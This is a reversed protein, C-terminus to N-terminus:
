INKELDPCEYNTRLDPTLSSAWRDSGLVSRIFRGAKVSSDTVMQLTPNTTVNTMQTPMYRYGNIWTKSGRKSLGFYVYASFLSNDKQASVFNALSYIILKEQGDRTKYKEIPQLMHPHSGLIVDAGNELWLRAFKVQQQTPRTQYEVGWHPTVIIFDVQGSNRAAIVISQVAQSNFCNLVQRKFDPQGNTGFTCALFAIRLGNKEVVTLYGSNSFTRTGTFPLGRLKLNEITRELGIAGRDLAHNNATSVVDIGSLKLDDLLSAHYNFRPYGTYVRFQGFSRGPDAVLELASTVGQATPGELNAYTIDAERLEPIINSWISRFNSASKYAKIQLSDHLLLDGVAGVVVSKEAQNCAMKFRDALAVQACSSAIFLTVLHKVSM